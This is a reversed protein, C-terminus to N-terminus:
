KDMQVLFKWKAHIEPPIKPYDSVKMFVLSRSKYAIYLGIFENDHIEWDGDRYVVLNGENYRIGARIQATTLPRNTPKHRDM